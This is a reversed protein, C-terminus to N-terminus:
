NQAPQSVPFLIDLCFIGDSWSATLVGEYKEAVYRMSRMGFGHYDHDQKTSVPLGEVFLPEKECPNEVHITLCGGVTSINLTIIRRGPNPEKVACEMANDLANGLLSYLDTTKLFSLQKGDAICQLKIGKQECLLGKESLIIDLDKSGTKAFRDYIMVAEELERISREQEAPDEMRRLASIQHKLDHCKRNIIEVSGKSAAHQEQEQRLVRLLILQDREAKRFQFLDFLIMLLLMCSFADFMMVGVTEAERMTTWLSVCYVIASSAVAFILLHVRKIDVAESGRIQKQLLRYCLLMTAVMIALQLTNASISDMPIALVCIRNLCHSLHQVTHAVCCYFVIQRLNMRFCAFLLIGCLVLMVFFGFTFWDICLWPAFYSGKVLFPLVLFVSGCGLLRLWFLKRHELHWCFLLAVALIQIHFWNIPWINM